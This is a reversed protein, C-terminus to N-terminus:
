SGGKAEHDGAKGIEPLRAAQGRVDLKGTVVDSILRARYESVLSRMQAIKHTNAQVLRSKEKLHEVIYSQEHPPPLALVASGLEEANLHPQAARMSEVILQDERVYTSLLVSAVFEPLANVATVVMDYGAISGAFAKPVIASDATYAGSRVVIIEGEQLVANRGSPVDEPNVRILYRDTIRGREVNTARILPLGDPAEAPPQGLGYRIECVAKLRRVDWHGPVRPLWEVGSEKYEAYPKGTRVDIQGTVAQHILAQKYEDLLAILREKARIYRQIRRDIHDLFRAIATQEPVPPLAIRIERVEGESIAPVPGPKALRGLDLWSLIRFAFKTDAGAVVCGMLNNDICTERTLLRRKNTLLAGGVKPFIITGSEFIKAGLRRAAARSVTNSASVIEKQNGLHNMDAVKAFLIDEGTNGQESIPFGAGAQFKGIRKLPLIDWHSPVIGLWPVGSDKTATYRNLGLTM